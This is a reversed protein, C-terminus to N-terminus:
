PGLPKHRPPVPTPSHPSASPPKTTHATTEEQKIFPSNTTSPPAYIIDDDDISIIPPPPPLYEVNDLDANWAAEEAVTEWNIDDHQTDSADNTPPSPTHCSLSVGPMEAPLQPFIAIPTPDLTTPEDDDDHWSFPIKKRNAFVLSPSVGQKGAIDAVRKIVSDPAPLETFRRRKLIQGTALNLFSYTGQINGDSGPM